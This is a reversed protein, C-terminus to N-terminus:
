TLPTAPPGFRNPGPDSRSLGVYLLFLFHAIVSLCLLGILVSATGAFMAWNFRDSAMAAIAGGAGMVIGGIVCIYGFAFVWLQHWGSKGFDHLRKAYLCAWCYTSLVWVVTGALPVLHILIGGVLLIAFGVWFDKQGIRGDASFLLRGIDM